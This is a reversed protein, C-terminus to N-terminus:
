ASRVAELLADEDRGRHARGVRVLTPNIRRWVRRPFLRKLDEEVRRPDTEATWGLKGAIRAVHTDVGVADEGAHGLFVNATKRGVGPLTLLSDLDAPVEGGFDRHLAEACAKLHKAKNRYYNVPRIVREIREVPAEALSRLTPFTRYLEQAVPLTTDDRTRASLLTTLLAQWAHPWAHPALREERATHELADLQRLARTRDM